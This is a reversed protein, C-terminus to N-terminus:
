QGTSPVFHRIRWRCHYFIEPTDIHFSDDQILVPISVETGRYVWIEAPIYEADELEATTTLTGGYPDQEIGSGSTATFPSELPEWGAYIFRAPNMGSFDGSLDLWDQVTMFEWSITCEPDEYWGTFTFGDKTPTPIPSTAYADYTEKVEIIKWFIGDETVFITPVITTPKFNFVMETSVNVTGAYESYEDVTTYETICTRLEEPLNALCRWYDAAYDSHSYHLSFLIYGNEDLIGGNALEGIYGEDPLNGNSLNCFYINEAGGFGLPALDEYAGAAPNESTDIWGDEEFSHASVIVYEKM